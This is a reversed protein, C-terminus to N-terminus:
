RVYRKYITYEKAYEYEYIKIETRGELLYENREFTWYTDPYEKMFDKACDQIALEKDRYIGLVDKNDKSYVVYMFEKM